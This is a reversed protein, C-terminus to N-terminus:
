RKMRKDEQLERPCSYMYIRRSNNNVSMLDRIGKPQPKKGAVTSVM